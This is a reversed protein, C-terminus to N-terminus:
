EIDGGLTQQIFAHQAQQFAGTNGQKSDIFCVANGLPPMIEPGLVLLQAKQVLSERLHGANGQRRRSIFSGAMLDDFLKVEMM